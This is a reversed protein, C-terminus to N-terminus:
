EDNALEKNYVRQKKTSEAYEAIYMHSVNSYMYRVINGAVTLYRINFM